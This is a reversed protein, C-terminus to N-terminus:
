AEEKASHSKAASIVPNAINPPVADYHSFEIHYFGEGATIAKLEAQYNQVEASPVQAKVVQM